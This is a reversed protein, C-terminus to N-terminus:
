DGGEWDDEDEGVEEDEEGEDEDGENDITGVLTFHGMEWKIRRMDKQLQTRMQIQTQTSTSKWWSWLRSIAM